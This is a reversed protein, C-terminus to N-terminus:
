GCWQHRCPVRSRRQLPLRCDAAQCVVYGLTSRRADPYGAWDVDTYVVLDSSSSRRLLLGFDPTGRLYRLIRKMATLHPEQPDHMHLCIQQMVYVIDPQTFTLHQLAGAISWFQSTDAFPPGSDDAL